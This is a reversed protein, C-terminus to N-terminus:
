GSLLPSLNLPEGGRAAPQKDEETIQDAGVVVVAVAVGVTSSHHRAPDTSRDIKSGHHGPGRFELQVTLNVGDHGLEGNVGGASKEEGAHLM